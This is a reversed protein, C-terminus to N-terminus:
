VNTSSAGNGNAGGAIVQMIASKTSESRTFEHLIKGKYFALTRDCLGVIEDVESSTFLLALGQKALQDCLRYIEAKAGVDVGRTPDALILVKPGTALWKAVVVKQQNGGSLNIVKKDISDTAINLQDIYKKATSRERSRDILGLRNLLRDLIVVTENKRISWDVMLGQERRSMPILGWGLKIAETPNKVNQRINEYLVEGRTPASLGFLARFVEMVGSGELGAFGLIEGARVQFNIPGVPGCVLDKVEVTVPLEDGLPPRDPFSEELSHGIMANVINPISTDAIRWTGQYNGDRIVSIRGAIHFVEELRHSVYIITIGKERLRHIIEFLRDTEHQTLASNPEDMIIIDSQQQLTRAIEVQQREAVSLKVVKACPDIDVGMTEFVRKAEAEMEKEKMLGGLSTAERNIFINATATLDHFLNLEQYVISIGLRRAELPDNIKVREGHLYIEGDDPLHNGALIKMLTSKGAGNEGVVAHIEGEDISFSVNNLATVGGFRKTVNELRILEGDM